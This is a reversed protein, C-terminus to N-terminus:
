SVGEKQNLMILKKMAVINKPHRKEQAKFVESFIICVM